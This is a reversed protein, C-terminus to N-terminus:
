WKQESSLLIKQKIFIKYRINILLHVKIVNLTTDAKEDGILAWHSDERHIGKLLISNLLTTYHLFPRETDIM